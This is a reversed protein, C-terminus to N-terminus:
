RRLRPVAWLAAAIGAADALVDLPDSVRGPVFSQHYEDSIAYLLSIAAALPLARARLGPSLAWIWLAALVFYEGFHAVVRTWAPLEPGVSPQDSLYFILGMMAVPALARLGTRTATV